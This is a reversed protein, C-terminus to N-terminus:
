APVTPGAGGGEAPACLTRRLWVSAEAVDLDGRRLLGVFEIALDTLRGDPEDPPDRRLHISVWRTPAAGFRYCCEAVGCFHRAQGPTGDDLEPLFGRGPVGDSGARALDLLGLAGPRVGAGLRGLRRVFARPTPRALAERAALEVLAACGDRKSGNSM